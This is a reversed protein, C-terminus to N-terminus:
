ALIRNNLIFSVPLPGSLALEPLTDPAELRPIGMHLSLAVVIKEESLNGSDLLIDLTSRGSEKASNQAQKHLKTNIVDWEHLMAVLQEDIFSPFQM